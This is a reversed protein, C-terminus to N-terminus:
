EKTPTEETPAEQTPTSKVKVKLVQKGKYFGCKTCANHSMALEGCQDCIYFTPTSIKWNAHNMRKKSKSRRRKPVAM